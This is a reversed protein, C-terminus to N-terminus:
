ASEGLLDDDEGVSPEGDSLARRAAFPAFMAAMALILIAFPSLWLIWTDAQFPPKLLVYNGYREVLYGLAEQDTAGAAIQERLLVRMDGAIPAASDDITQNQCVVCRLRKSLELARAELAPDSLKESPLVAQAQACVSIALVTALFIRVWARLKPKM